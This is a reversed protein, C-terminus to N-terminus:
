REVELVVLRRRPPSAGEMPADPQECRLPRPFPPRKRSKGPDMAQQALVLRCGLVKLLDPLGRQGAALGFVLEFGFVAETVNPAVDISGRLREGVVLARQIEGGVQVLGAVLGSGVVSEGLAGEQTPQPGPGRESNRGSNRLSPTILTSAPMLLDGRYSDHDPARTL